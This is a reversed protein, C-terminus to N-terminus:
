PNPQARSFKFKAGTTSVSFTNSGAVNYTSTSNRVKFGNSLKDAHTGFTVSNSNITMATPVGNLYVFPGDASANGTFTGSTTITGEAINTDCLAKFGSPATYAFARQGFNIAVVTSSNAAFFAATFFGSLGTFAPNAGTAPNGSEQWTGNRAFYVKGNDMDLAVSVINGADWQTYGTTTNANANAKFGGYPSCYAYGNPGTALTDPDGSDTKVKDAKIVGIRREGGVSVVDLEWYWKGSNVAITSGTNGIATGGLLLNGDTLSSLPAKELPNWTAYNGRVEGGVSTDTGFSTPTDVLSDNGAGATVSLNNPTWDNNNNSSDNGLTSSTAASNDSFKLSFGNTGYTGAYAIPVWQNGYATDTQGFSSPTLAQGDIFHIDALYGNFNYGSGSPDSKGIYHVSTSNINFTDGPSPDTAANFDTVRAGNIYIRIRDTPTGNNTDMVVVFHFWASVDRFVQTTLRLQTFWTGLNIRNATTFNCELLSTAGSYCSFFVMEGDLKTRKVWAAWTWTTRSGAVAPTHSLYASDASNFRLSRSIQLGAYPPVPTAASSGSNFLPTLSGPISM